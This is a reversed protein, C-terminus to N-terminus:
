IRKATKGGVGQCMQLAMPMFEVVLPLMFVRDGEEVDTGRVYREQEGIRGIVTGSIIAAEPYVM